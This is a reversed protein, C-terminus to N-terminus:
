LEALLDRMLPELQEDRPFRPAEALAQHLLDRAEMLKEEALLIRALILRFERSPRSAVARRAYREAADLSSEPLDSAMWRAIWPLTELRLEITALTALATANEPELELAHEAAARTRRAHASREGMPRLHTAGGLAWALQARAEAGDAGHAVAREAYDLASALVHNRGDRDDEPLLLVADSESRSAALLVGADDPHAAALALAIERALGLDGEARAADIAAIEQETTLSAPLELLVKRARWAELDVHATACGCLSLLLLAIALGRCSTPPVGV